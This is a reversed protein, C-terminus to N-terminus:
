IRIPPYGPLYIDGPKIAGGKVNLMENDTLKFGEFLKKKSEFNQKKM